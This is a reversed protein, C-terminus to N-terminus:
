CGNSSCTIVVSERNGATDYNYTVVTGNSYTATRIRGQADYQYLISDGAASASSICSFFSLSALMFLLGVTLSPKNAMNSGSCSQVHLEATPM